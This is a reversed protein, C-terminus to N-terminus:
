VSRTEQHLQPLHQPLANVPVEGVEGASAQSASARHEWQFAVKNRKVVTWSSIVHKRSLSDDEPSLQPMELPWMGGSFALGSGNASASLICKRVLDSTEGSLFPPASQCVFPETANAYSRNESGWNRKEPRQAQLPRHNWPMAEGEFFKCDWILNIGFRVYAFYSLFWLGDLALNCTLLLYFVM